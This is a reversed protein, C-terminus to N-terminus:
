KKKKTKTAAKAENEQVKFKLMNTFLKVPLPKDLPFQVSGKANKYVAIEKKFHLIPSAGPYFGVHHDYGAFWAVMGHYKYAPMKYSIVEEANPVTKLIIARLQQLLQQTQQPFSTIYKDIENPQTPM